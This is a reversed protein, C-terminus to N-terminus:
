SFEGHRETAPPRLTPLLEGLQNRANKSAFSLIVSRRLFNASVRARRLGVPARWNSALDLKDRERRMANDAVSVDDLFDGYEATLATLLEGDDCVISAM